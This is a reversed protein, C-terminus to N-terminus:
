IGFDLCTKGAKFSCFFFTLLSFSLLVFPVFSPLFFQVEEINQQDGELLDERTKLFKSVKAAINLKKLSYLNAENTALSRLAILIISPSCAFGPITPIHTIGSENM